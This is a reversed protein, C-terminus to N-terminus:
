SAETVGRPAYGVTAGELLAVRLDPNEEKAQLAAWLGTFGGGVVVLDVRHTGALAPCPAPAEQPRDIWFPRPAAEAVASAVAREQADGRM